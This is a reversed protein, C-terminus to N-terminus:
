DDADAMARAVLHSPLEQYHDFATTYRGWGQTLSRLDIAYRIIESSPILAEVVQSGNDATTTGQVAGRRSAIDGMVDGQYASPVTIAVRSVPELVIPAAQEFATRFGARAALKFAIESSDVSHYKGDDVTVEIDVVPFGHAGGQNMTEIVGKEVAPIYQKPISGGKVKDVFTFGEGRNVPRLRLHCVGFQGSGGSQKKHRGEADASRSITERYPVKVKEQDVKVGFKRELKDIATQVHSEGLGFLLTQNTERSRELRLSADEELIRHLATSLKDDDSQTRAVIATALVPEPWDIPAVTVPTGKPALTDGTKTDILKAVAVIDGAPASDVLTTENGFMTAIKALRENQGSRGSMLNTEPKLTGSLVKLLSIQGVYPDALTKFVFALPDGSPDAEIEVQQDGVTVITPPRDAPSPALAVIFDALRDVGIKETASGCVVPFVTAAAVGIAMTHELEEISPADGDLYRELMDDDGIVIGEVLNDRLEQERDMMEEPMDTVEPKGSNYVYAKDRFLDAVGRFDMERGVPIEVPAIGAGFRDRLQAVTKTFSSREKDLKNVFIMRPVSLEEALRWAYETQVEVGDVGDVVFIALDTVRLAAHLEGAYDAYGPTDILNIKHGQWEFPALAMTITTGREHEEPDYDMVTNGAEVTGIRSIAGAHFLLAEALSTKGSGSHGVLAVNRIKEPPFVKM